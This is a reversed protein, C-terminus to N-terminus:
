VSDSLRTIFNPLYADYVYKSNILSASSAKISQFSELSQCWFGQDSTNRIDHFVVQFKLRIKSPAIKCKLFNKILNVLSSFLLLM